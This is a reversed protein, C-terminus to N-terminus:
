KIGDFIMGQFSEPYTKCVVNLPTARLRLSSHSSDLHPRRAVGVFRDLKCADDTQYIPECEVTHERSCELMNQVHGGNSSFMKGYNYQRLCTTKSYVYYKKPMWINSSASECTWRMKPLTIPFSELNPLISSGVPKAWETCYLQLGWIQRGGALTGKPDRYRSDLFRNHIGFSM